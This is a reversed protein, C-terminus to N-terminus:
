FGEIAERLLTMENGIPHLLRADLGQKVYADHNEDRVEERGARDAAGVDVAVSATLRLGGIRGLWGVTDIM